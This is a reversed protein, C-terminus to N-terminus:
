MELLGIGMLNYNHSHYKFEHIKKYIENNKIYKWAEVMDLCWCDNIDHFCIKSTLLKAERFDNMVFDYSHNADVFVVDYTKLPAHERSFHPSPIIIHTIPINLEKWKQKINDNVYDIIDLTDLQKLGFRKLYIAVVTATIGTFCGIDLYTEVNGLSVLKILFRALQKPIQWMGIYGESRDEPWMYKVDDGYLSVKMNQPHMRPDNFLGIPSIIETLFDENKLLEIKCNMVSNNYFDINQLYKEFILPDGLYENYYNLTM